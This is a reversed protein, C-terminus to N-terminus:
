SWTLMAGVGASVSTVLSYVCNKKASSDSAVPPFIFKDDGCM